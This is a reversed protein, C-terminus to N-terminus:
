PDRFRHGTLRLFVDELTPKGVTISHIAGPFAEALRPVFAPGDAHEFRVAGELAVVAVGFRSAIEAALAPPDDVELAVIDGRIEAMLARPADLGVLEGRDLIGIRDCAAAEDMLHTTVVVTVASRSRLTELHSWLDLRAGPDLGVTPEDLLLVAPESLLGKAVEIRRTLGGSLTRVPEDARDAVGLQELVVAIRQGLRSGSLGHLHGHHRLNERPSLWPDLSPHQFVVGIQRRAATPQRVVDAGGIRATGGTPRLLTTLVRLLTTKGGGNPGLLAFLEGRAVDFSVGHLVPRSGFSHSLGDIAVAPAHVDANM